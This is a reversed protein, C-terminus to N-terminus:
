HEISRILELHSYSHRSDTKIENSTIVISHQPKLCMKIIGNPDIPLEMVVFVIVLTLLKVDKRYLSFFFQEFLFFFAFLSYILRSFTHVRKTKLVNRANSPKKPSLFGFFQNIHTHSIIRKWCHFNLNAFSSHGVNFLTSGLFFLSVIKNGNYYQTHSICLHMDIYHCQYPWIYMSEMSTLLVTIAMLSKRM